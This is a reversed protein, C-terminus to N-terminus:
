NVLEYMAYKALKNIHTVKLAYSIVKLIYKWFMGTKFAWKYSSSEPRSQYSKTYMKLCAQKALKNINIAKLDHNTDVM